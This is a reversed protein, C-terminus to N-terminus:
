IKKEDSIICGDSLEIIRNCKNAVERDHTVIIITKGDDNLEKFVSMIESATVKDLAATPEDALIIAPDNIMARCIAVRQKQGGSLQAVKKKSLDSIGIKKLVENVKGKINRYKVSNSFMLPISVNEFVSKEPLLGFDQLVFGINDNRLESLTNDGYKSVDYKGLMYTGVTPSDLCGIIHLLTSKGSGSVGMIAVYEGKDIFLDVDKLAHVETDKGLNYHKNVKKFEIM